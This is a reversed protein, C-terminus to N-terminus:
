EWKEEKCYKCEYKACSDWCQGVKWNHGFEKCFEGSKFFESLEKKDIM